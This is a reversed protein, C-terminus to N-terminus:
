GSLIKATQFKKLHNSKLQQHHLKNILFIKLNVKVKKLILKWKKKFYIVNKM